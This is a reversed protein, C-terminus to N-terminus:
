TGYSPTSAEVLVAAAQLRGADCCPCGHAHAYRVRAVVIAQSRDGFEGLYETAHEPFCSPPCRSRDHVAHGGDLPHSAVFYSAM